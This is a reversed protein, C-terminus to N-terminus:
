PLEMAHVSVNGLEAHSVIISPTYFEMAKYVDVQDAITKNFVTLRTCPLKEGRVPGPSSPSPNGLSLPRPEAPQSPLIPGNSPRGAYCASAVSCRLRESPFSAAEGHLAFVSFASDGHQLPCREQEHYSVGNRGNFMCGKGQLSVHPRIVTRMASAPTARSAPATRRGVTPVAGLPSGVEFRPTWRVSSVHEYGHWQFVFFHLCAPSIWFAQLADSKRSPPRIGAFDFIHLHPRTVPRSKNAAWVVSGQFGHTVRCRMDRLKVAQAIISLDVRERLMVSRAVADVKDGNV